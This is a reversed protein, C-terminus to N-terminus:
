WLVTDRGRCRLRPGDAFSSAPMHFTHGSTATGKLALSFRLTRSRRKSSRKCHHALDLTHMFSNCLHRQTKGMLVSTTRTSIPHYVVASLTEDVLIIRFGMITFSSRLIPVVPVVPFTILYMGLRGTEGTRQHRWAVGLPLVLENIFDM